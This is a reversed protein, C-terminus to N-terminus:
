PRGGVAVPPTIGDSSAVAPQEEEERPDRWLPEGGQNCFKLCEVRFHMLSWDGTVICFPADLIAPWLEVWTHSPFDGLRFCGIYYSDFYHSGTIAHMARAIEHDPKGSNIISRQIIENARAHAQLGYPTM